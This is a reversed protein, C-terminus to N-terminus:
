EEPRRFFQVVVGSIGVREVVQRAVRRLRFAHLPGTFQQQFM